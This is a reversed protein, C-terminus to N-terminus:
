TLRANFQARYNSIAAAFASTSGVCNPSPIEVIITKGASDSLVLHYDSDSELKYMTLTANVVFVTTETPQVRNSQPLTGPTLGRLAAITTTTTSGLNVLSVDSDTGTKVPWREAGCQGAATSATWSAAVSLLLLPLLPKLTPLRM